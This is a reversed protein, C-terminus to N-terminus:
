QRFDFPIAETNCLRKEICSSSKIEPDIKKWVAETEMCLYLKRSPLKALLRKWLREYARERIFRLYRMKGGAPVLEGTFIKTNPFRHMAIDTLDPPYRLSGISVWSIQRPELSAFIKDVVDEYAAIDSEGHTLVIPDFHFAVGFGAEASRVAASIREDLSATGREESTIIDQTNMSWSIVTRGRHKLHLLHDVSATKTKLELQANRKAAFFPILISSFETLHDLALSDSLEGTCVRFFRDQYGALFRSVEALISEINVNITIVPNNALYSQLICYSCDMPCGSVLDLVRMNCCIHASGIGQCPKFVEGQHATLLLQRKASTLDRRKKLAHRDEIIDVDVERLKNLIRITEPHSEVARDIWVQEIESSVPKKAQRSGFKSTIRKLNSSLATSSM